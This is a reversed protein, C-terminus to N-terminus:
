ICCCHFFIAEQFTDALTDYLHIGKHELVFNCDPTKPHDMIIVWSTNLARALLVKTLPSKIWPYIDQKLFSVRM